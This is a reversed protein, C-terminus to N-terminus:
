EDDLLKKYVDPYLFELSTDFLACLQLLHLSSPIVSGNEWSEVHTSSVSLLAAIDDISYGKNVRHEKITNPNHEKSKM